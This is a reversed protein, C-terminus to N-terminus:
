YYLRSLVIITNGGLPLVQRDLVLHFENSNQKKSIALLLPQTLDKPKESAYAELNVWGAYFLFM